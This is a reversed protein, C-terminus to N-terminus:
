PKPLDSSKVWFGGGDPPLIGLGVPMVNTFGATAEMPYIKAGAELAGIKASKADAQAFIPVEKAITVVPPPEGLALSQSAYPTPNPVSNSWVEAHRTATVDSWRAWGEVTLDTKARLHVYGGRSETSFFLQRTDETMSFTFVVEGRPSDYLDLEEKKMQYSRAHGPVDPQEPVPPKITFSDCGYTGRVQQDNSGMVTHEVTFGAAAAKEPQLETSKTIWVHGRVVPLEKAAFFRFPKLDVWGDVRLHGKGEVSSRVKVRAGKLQAPFHSISVPVVGGTFKAIAKGGAPADYVLTGAPVPIEAGMVCALAPAPPAADQALTDATPGLLLATGTLTCALLRNM